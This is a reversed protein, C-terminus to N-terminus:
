IMERGATPMGFQQPLKATRDTLNPAVRDPETSILETSILEIANTAELADQPVSLEVACAPIIAFEDNGCPEVAAGPLRSM